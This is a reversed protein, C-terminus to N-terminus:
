TNNDFSLHIAIEFYHNICQLILSRFLLIIARTYYNAVTIFTFKFLKIYDIKFPISKCGYERVIFKGEQVFLYSFVLLHEEFYLIETNIYKITGM